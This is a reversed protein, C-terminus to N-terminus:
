IVWFPEKDPETVVQLDSFNMKIWAEMYSTFIHEIGYHGADIISLGRAVADIGTHHDIDGTILVDAGSTLAVEVESKGAGPSIAIRKLETQGDGFVKVSSIDFRSKCKKALDCLTIPATVDAVCGIGKAKDKDAITVDLVEMHSLGLQRGAIEGMVQVDFNTHMAVYSIKHEILKIIRRGIFDQQVVQKMGSFILPHHTLLLDAGSAIAHEIVEDTADLALYAKTVQRNEDGVLLGVNDWDLALNKPIEEEVRHLFEAVNM